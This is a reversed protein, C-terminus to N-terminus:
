YSNLFHAYVSAFIFMTYQDRSSDPYHTKGDEICIGRPLFGMTNASLACSIMGDVISRIFELLNSTPRLQYKLLCADLMTAGSIMCDEMGTSYGCPNPYISLIEKATPFEHERGFVVHDYILQTKKCFLKDAVFSFCEDIKQKVLNDM